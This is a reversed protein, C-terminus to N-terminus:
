GGGVNMKREPICRYCEIKESTWACKKYQSRDMIVVNEGKDSPKIDHNNSLSLLAQQLKPTLNTGGVSKDALQRIDHLVKQVFAWIHINQQLSTFSEFKNKYEIKPISHTSETNTVTDLNKNMDEQPIMEEWLSMLEGLACFGIFSFDKWLEMNRAVAEQPTLSKDNIVYRTM